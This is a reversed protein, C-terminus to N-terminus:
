KVVIFVPAYASKRSLRQFFDVPNFNYPGLLRKLFTQPKNVPTGNDVVKVTNATPTITREVQIKDDIEILIEAKDEGLYILTPDVGTSKVAESIAKVVSSKGVGNGGTVVNFKGLAGPQLQKIGMYNRITIKTIKM